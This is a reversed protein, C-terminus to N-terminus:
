ASGANSTAETGEADTGEAFTFKWSNGDQRIYQEGLPMDQSVLVYEQLADLRRCRAWKEGRDYRETSPSM